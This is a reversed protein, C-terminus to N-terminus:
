GTSRMPLLRKKVAKPKATGSEAGSQYAPALPLSEVYRRLDEAMIVRRVGHMRYPLKNTKMADYLDNLSLGTAAAASSVRYSLTEAKM